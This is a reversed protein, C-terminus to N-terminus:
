QPSKCHNNHFQCATQVRTECAGILTNMDKNYCLDWNTACKTTNMCAQSLANCSDKNNCLQQAATCIEQKCATQQPPNSM